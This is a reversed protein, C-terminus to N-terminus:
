VWGIQSGSINGVKWFARLFGMILTGVVSSHVSFSTVYVHNHFMFMLLCYSSVYLQNLLFHM